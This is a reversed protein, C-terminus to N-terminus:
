GGSSVFAATVTPSRSRGGAPTLDVVILCGSPSGAPTGRPGRLDPEQRDQPASPAVAATPASALACAAVM